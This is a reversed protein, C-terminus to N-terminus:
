GYFTEKSKAYVLAGFSLLISQPIIRVPMGGYGFQQGSTSHIIFWGILFVILVPITNRLYFLSTTRKYAYYLKYCFYILFGNLLVFGVLGTTMLLNQNGVHGDSYERAVDSGGWGFLPREKWKNIVRPSRESIRALTGEATRDGLAVAELTQIRDNTYKVQRKIKDNSLGLVVLFSAIIIFEVLRKFSFKKTFFFSFLIIVSFSIIWGRTASLFAMGYASIIVFYLYVTNYPSKDRSSILILSGFLSLLTVSPNYFVRFVESEELQEESLEIAEVFSIGSILLFLQTIFALILISFVFGFFRYYININIFLRPISYFLILPLTGKLIRFYANLGGSFGSTKGWITLFILYLFLVLLFRKYFVNGFPKKNLTKILTIVIYFQALEIAPMGPILKITVTYIGLFGMFGDVTILFFALWFAEDDSRFYLILLIFYWLSALFPPSLYTFGITVSVLLLFKLYKEPLISKLM